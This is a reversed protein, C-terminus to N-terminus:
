VTGTDVHIARVIAGPVVAGSEDLVRGYISATVSQAHAAPALSAVIILVPLMLRFCKFLSDM